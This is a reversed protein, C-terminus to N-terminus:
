LRSNCCNYFYVLELEHCSFVQLRVVSVSSTPLFAPYVLSLLPHFLSLFALLHSLSLTPFFISLIRLFQIDSFIQPSYFAKQIFPNELHTLLQFSFIFHYMKSLFTNSTISSLSITILASRPTCFITPSM